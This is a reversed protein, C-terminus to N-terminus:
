RRTGKVGLEEPTKDTVGYVVAQGPRFPLRVEANEYSLGGPIERLTNWYVRRANVRFALEPVVHAKPVRWYQTLRPGPWRWISTWFFPRVAAPDREDTTLPVLVDGDETRHLRDLPYIADKTFDNGAYDKFRDTSRVIGDELWLERLREYNGMTATLILSAPPRSGPAVDARLELERPRDPRFVLTVRADAGNAFREVRLTVELAGDRVIGPPAPTEKAPPAYREPSGQADTAWILKGPRGDASPELESYGKAGDETVPEVAIFNVLGYRGENPIPLGICLLGRPGAAPPKRELGSPWLAVRIGGEIGWVPLPRDADPRVWGPGALAAPVICLFAAAPAAARRVAHPIGNM